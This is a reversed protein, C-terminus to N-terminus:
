RKHYSHFLVENNPYKGFSKKSTIFQESISKLLDQVKNYQEVSGRIGATIKKKIFMVGLRNSREWREFLSVEAPTSEKTM